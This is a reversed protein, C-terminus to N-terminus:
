RPRPIIKGLYPAVFAVHGKGPGTYLFTTICFGEGTVMHPSKPSTDDCDSTQIEIGDTMYIMTEIEARVGEGPDLEIEVIQMNNGFIKYDIVDAM